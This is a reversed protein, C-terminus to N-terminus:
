GEVVIPIVDMWLKDDVESFVENEKHIKALKEIQTRNIKELLEEFLDELFHKIRIEANECQIPIPTNKIGTACSSLLLWNGPIFSSSQALAEESIGYAEAIVQRDYKKALKSIFFTNIQAIITSDNYAIRQTSVGLGLGYKRGRRALTKCAEISLAISAREKKDKTEVDKPIFIDAEDFFFLVPPDTIGKNKRIEYMTTVLFHAFERLKNDDDSLFIVLSKDEDSLIDIIGKPGISFLYGKDKLKEKISQLFTKVEEIYEVAGAIDKAKDKKINEILELLIDISRHTVSASGKLVEKLSSFAQSVVEILLKRIKKANRGRLEIENQIYGIVATELSDISYDGEFIKVKGNELLKMIALYLKDKLPKLARPIVVTDVLDKAAQPIFRVNGRLFEKVSETIYDENLIILHSDEVTILDDILLTTYENNVDFIVVNTNLRDNALLHHVLTSLLNSKGAGTTAFIGFHRRLLQDYDIYVDVEPYYKHKGILMSTERGIVDANIVMSIAKDNLLYVEHGQVPELTNPQIRIGFNELKSISPIYIEKETIDARVIIKLNPNEEQWLNREWDKVLKTFEEELRITSPTQKLSEITYHVAKKYKVQLVTFHMEEKLIKEEKSSYVNVSSFNTVGLLSGMSLLKMVELSYPFWIECEGNDIDVLFGKVLKGNVERFIERLIDERRMEVM